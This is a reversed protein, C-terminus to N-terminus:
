NSLTITEFRSKEKEKKKGDDHSPCAIAGVTFVCVFLAVLIKNM